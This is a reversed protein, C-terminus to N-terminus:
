TTQAPASSGPNVTGATVQSVSNQVGQEFGSGGASAVKSLDVGSRTGLADGLLQGALEEGANTLANFVPGEVAQLLQQEVAQIARDVLEKVITRTVAIEGPVAAESAGFTVPAAAQDAIIEAALVGLQVIAAVKLGVVVVAALDLGTALLGMGEALQPLHGQALKSWLAQFLQLSESSNVGLMQEISSQADGTNSTLEQQIQRLEDAAKRLEDEDINPWEIGILDLVWALADPLVVGM